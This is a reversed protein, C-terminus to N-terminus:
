LPCNVAVLLLGPEAATVGPELLLRKVTVVGMGGAGVGSCRRDRHPVREAIGRGKGILKLRSRGARARAVYGDPSSRRSTAARGRASTTFVVAVAFGRVDQGLLREQVLAGEFNKIERLDALSVRTLGVCWTRLRARQRALRRRVERDHAPQDALGALHANQRALVAKRHLPDVVDVVRNCVGRAADPERRALQTRDPHVRRRLPLLPETRSASSVGSSRSVLAGKRTKGCTTVRM